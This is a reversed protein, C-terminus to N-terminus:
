LTSHCSKHRMRVVWNMLFAFRIPTAKHKHHVVGDGATATNHAHKCRDRKHGMLMGSVYVAIACEIIQKAIFKLLTPFIHVCLANAAHELRNM